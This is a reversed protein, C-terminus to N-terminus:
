ELSVGGEDGHESGRDLCLGFWFVFWLLSGRHSVMILREKWIGM